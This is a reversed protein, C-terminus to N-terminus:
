WRYDLVEMLVDLVQAYLESEKDRFYAMIEYQQNEASVQKNLQVERIAGYIDYLRNMVNPKFENANPQFYLDHFHLLRQIQWALRKKTFQDQYTLAGGFLVPTDTLVTSKEGPKITKPHLGAVVEVGFRPDFEFEYGMWINHEGHEDITARVGFFNVAAANCVIILKPRLREILGMSLQLQRIIFQVGEETKLLDIVKRQSTERIFLLDLYTWNDGVGCADALNQFPKFFRPYVRVAQQPDFSFSGCQADKPFSPNLGVFLVDKPEIQSWVFGRQLLEAIPAGAEAFDQAILALETELDRLIKKMRNPDLLSDSPNM